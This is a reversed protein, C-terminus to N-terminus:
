AAIGPLEEAQPVVRLPTGNWQETSLVTSDGLRSPNHVALVRHLPVHWNSRKDLNRASIVVFADTASVHKVWGEIRDYEGEITLSVRQGSAWARRLDTAISGVYRILARGTM